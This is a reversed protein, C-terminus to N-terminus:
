DFYRRWPTVGGSGDVFYLLVDKATAGVGYPVPARPGWKQLHSLVTPCRSYFFLLCSVKSVMVIASVLVVLQVKIYVDKNAVLLWLM